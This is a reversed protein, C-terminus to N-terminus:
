SFWVSVCVCVSYCNLHLVCITDHVYYFYIDIHRPMKKGVHQGGARMEPMKHQITARSISNKKRSHDVCRLGMRAAAATAYLWGSFLM